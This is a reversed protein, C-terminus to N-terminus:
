NLIIILTIHYDLNFNTLILNFKYTLIAQRRSGNSHGFWISNKVMYVERTYGSNYIKNVYKEIKQKFNQTDKM